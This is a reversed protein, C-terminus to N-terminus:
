ADDPDRGADWSAVRAERDKTAVKRAGAYSTSSACGVWADKPGAWREVEWFGHYLRTRYGTSYRWGFVDKHRKFSIM